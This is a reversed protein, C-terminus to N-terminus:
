IRQSDKKVLRLNEKEINKTHWLSPNELWCGMHKDTHELFFLQDCPTLKLNTLSDNWALFRFLGGRGFDDHWTFLKPNKGMIKYLHFDDSIRTRTTGRFEKLSIWRIHCWACLLCSLRGSRSAEQPNLFNLPPCALFSPTYSWIYAHEILLFAEVTLLCTLPVQADSEIYEPASNPILRLQTLWKKLFIHCCGGFYQKDTQM